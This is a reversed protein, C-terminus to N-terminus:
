SGLSRAVADLARVVVSSGNPATLGLRAVSRQAIGLGHGPASVLTPVVPGLTAVGSGDWGWDGVAYVRSEMLVATLTRPSSAPLTPTATRLASTIAYASQNVARALQAGVMDKESLKVLRLPSDDDILNEERCAAVLRAILEGALDAHGRLDTVDLDVHASFGPAALPIAVELDAPQRQPQDAARPARQVRV